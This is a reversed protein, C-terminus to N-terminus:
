QRKFNIVCVRHHNQGHESIVDPLGHIRDEGISVVFYTSGFDFVGVTYSAPVKKLEEILQGVTM